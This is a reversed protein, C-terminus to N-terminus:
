VSSAAGYAWAGCERVPERVCRREQLAARGAITAVVRIGDGGDAAALGKGVAGKSVGAANDNDALGPEVLLAALKVPKGDRPLTLGHAVDRPDPAGDRQVEVAAGLGRLRQRPEAERQERGAERESARPESISM